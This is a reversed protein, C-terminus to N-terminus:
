FPQQQQFIDMGMNFGNNHAAPQAPPNVQTTLGSKNFYKELKTIIHKGYNFKKLQQIHPKITFLMKKRHVSDAVDLMKQVVYNAYQDRMMQMLPPNPDNPVGCVSAILMNKHENSCCTLCKEIVNSAFKHQSFRLVDQCIQSVIHQRDSESGHEIVHQVVYNGYQDTVLLKISEHLRRLIPEKQEESCYELVRQIVRCGYPHTSLQFVTDTQKVFADVIFQLRAPEVKEIIKQVVHNGNQDKVCKLVQSEMEKLVALQQQEDIAELAKQIVRCGYMQLALDMVNGRIADCLRKKQDPMGFEFFKQVVYNGFVDRMLHHVQKIIEEFILQKERAPARELKQQIFRSGHQDQAFECVHGTIDNITLHPTRNNRFDDLLASRMVGDTGVEMRNFSRNNPPHYQVPHGQRQQNPQPPPAQIMQHNIESMQGFGNAMYGNQNGMPAFPAHMNPMQPMNQMGNMGQMGMGQMMFIPQTPPYMLNNPIVPPQQHGLTLGGLSSTLNTMHNPDYHNSFPPTGFFTPSPNNLVQEPLPQAQIPMPNTQYVPGWGGYGTPPSALAMSANEQMPVTIPM